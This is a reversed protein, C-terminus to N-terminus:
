GEGNGYKRLNYLVEDEVAESFKDRFSTDNNFVSAEAEEGYETGFYEVNKIECLQKVMSRVSNIVIREAEKTLFDYNNGPTIKNNRLKKKMM